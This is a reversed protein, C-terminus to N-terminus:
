PNPRWCHSTPPHTAARGSATFVGSAPLAGDRVPVELEQFAREVSGIGEIIIFLEVENLKWKWKWKM